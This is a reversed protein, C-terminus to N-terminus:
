QAFADGHRLEREGHLSRGTLRFNNRIDAADHTASDGAQGAREPAHGLSVDSVCSRGRLLEALSQAAEEILLVLIAAISLIKERRVRLDRAKARGSTELKACCIIARHGEAVNREAM